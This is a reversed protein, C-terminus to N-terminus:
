KLLEISEEIFERYESLIMYKASERCAGLVNEKGLIASAIGVVRRQGDSGIGYAPGGSDGNLPCGQKPTLWLIKDAPYRDLKQQMTASRLKFDIAGNDYAGYGAIIFTKKSMGNAETPTNYISKEYNINAPIAEKLPSELGLVALDNELNRAGETYLKHVRFDNVRVYDNLTAESTNLKQLVYHSVNQSDPGEKFVCHAATLIHRKSLVVGTCGNSQQQGNRDTFTAAVLVTGLYVENKATVLDGQHIGNGGEPNLFGQDQQSCSGLSIALLCIFMKHKYDM